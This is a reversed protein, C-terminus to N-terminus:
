KLAELRHMRYDFGYDSKTPVLLQSVDIVTAAQCSASIGFSIVFLGARMATVRVAKVGWVAAYGRPRGVVGVRGAPRAMCPTRADKVVPGSHPNATAWRRSNECIRGVDDGAELALNNKTQWLDELIPNMKAKM